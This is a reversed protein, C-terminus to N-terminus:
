NVGLKPRPDPTELDGAELGNTFRNKAEKPAGNRRYTYYNANNQSLARVSSM